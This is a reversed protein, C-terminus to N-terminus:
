KAFIKGAELLSRKIPRAKDLLWEYDSRPLDVSAGDLIREAYDLCKANEVQYLYAEKRM